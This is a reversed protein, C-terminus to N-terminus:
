TQKRALKMRLQSGVRRAEELQQCASRLFALLEPGAVGFTREQQEKTNESNNEIATHQPHLVIKQPTYEVKAQEKANLAAELEACRLALRLVSPPLSPSLAEGTSQVNAEKRLTCATCSKDYSARITDEDLSHFYETFMAIKTKLSEIELSKAVASAHQHVLETELEGCREKYMDITLRYPTELPLDCDMEISFSARHPHIVEEVTDNHESISSTSLRTDVVRSSSEM